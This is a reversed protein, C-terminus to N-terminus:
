VHTLWTIDPRFFVRDAHEAYAIPQIADDTASPQTATLAGPTTSLWLPLEDPTWSYLSDDRYIGYLLVLHSGSSATELALGMAPYKGSANADAKSVTASGSLYLIDGPVISEGYTYSRAIGSYDQNAPDALVIKDVVTPNVSTITVTGDNAITADGSLAQPQWTNAERIGQEEQFLTAYLLVDADGAGVFMASLRDVDRRLAALQRRADDQFGAAM